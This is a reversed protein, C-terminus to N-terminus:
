CIVNRYFPNKEVKDIKFFLITEKKGKKDTVNKTEKQIFGFNLLFSLFLNSDHEFIM